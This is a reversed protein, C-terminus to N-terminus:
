SILEGIPTSSVGNFDTITADFKQLLTLHLNTLPTGQKLQVHRDPNLSGSGRGALLIPLNQKKHGNGDKMGSGYLVVSNDRLSRGNGEDIKRM